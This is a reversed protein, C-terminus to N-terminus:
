AQRTGGDRGERRHPGRVGVVLDRQEPHRRIFAAVYPCEPTVFLSRGRIDDLAAAVLRAAVGRGEFAPLVETHDLVLWGDRPQYDIVGALTGDLWAEYRGEAANDVVELDDARGVKRPEDAM